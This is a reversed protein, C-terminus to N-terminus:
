NKTMVSGGAQLRSLIERIDADLRPDQRRLAEVRRCGHVVTSHDRGLARGIAAFSQRTLQRALFMTVARACVAQADKRRSTVDIPSLDYYNAVVCLLPRVRGGALTRSEDPPM